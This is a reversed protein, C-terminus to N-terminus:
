RRTISDAGNGRQLAWALRLAFVAVGASARIAIMVDASLEFAANRLRAADVM